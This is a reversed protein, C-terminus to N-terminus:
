TPLALYVVEGIKPDRGLRRWATMAREVPDESMWPVFDDELDGFVVDEMALATLVGRVVM